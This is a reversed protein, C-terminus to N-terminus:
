TTLLDGPYAALCRQSLNQFIKYTNKVVPLEVRSPTALYATFIKTYGERSSGGGAFLNSSQTALFTLVWIKFFIRLIKRSQSMSGGILRSFDRHAQSQSMRSSWSAVSDGFCPLMTKSIKSMKAFVFSKEFVALVSLFIKTNLWCLNLM